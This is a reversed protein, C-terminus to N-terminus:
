VVFKPAADTEKRTVGNSGPSLEFPLYCVDDIASAINGNTGFAVTSSNYMDGCVKVFGIWAVSEFVTTEDKSRSSYYVREVVRQDALASIPQHCEHARDLARFAILCYVTHQKFFKSM